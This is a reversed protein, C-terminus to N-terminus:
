VRVVSSSYLNCLLKTCEYCIFVPLKLYLGSTKKANIFSKNEHTQLYKCYTTIAQFFIIFNTPPFSFLMHIADSGDVHTEIKM